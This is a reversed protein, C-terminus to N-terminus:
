ATAPLVVPEPRAPAGYHHIKGRSWKTNNYFNQRHHKLWLHATKVGSPRRPLSSRDGAQELSPNTQKAKSQKTKEKKPESPLLAPARTHSGIAFFGEEASSSSFAGPQERRRGGVQRGCARSLRNRCQPGRPRKPPSRAIPFCAPSLGM